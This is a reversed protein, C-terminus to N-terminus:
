RSKKKTGNLLDQYRKTFKIKMTTKDSNDSIIKQISDLTQKEITKALDLQQFKFQHNYWMDYCTEAMRTGISQPEKSKKRYNEREVNAFTDMDVLPYKHHNKDAGVSWNALKTDLMIGEHEYLKLTDTIITGLADCIEDENNKFPKHQLNEDGEWSFRDIRVQNGSNKWTLDSWITELYDATTIQKNLMKWFDIDNQLREESDYPIGKVTMERRTIKFVTKRDSRTPTYAFVRFNSGQPRILPLEYLEGGSYLNAFIPEICYDPHKRLGLYRTDGINHIDKKKHDLIITLDEASNISYNTM